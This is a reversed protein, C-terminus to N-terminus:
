LSLPAGARMKRAFAKMKARIGNETERMRHLFYSFRPDTPKREVDKLFELAFREGLEEYLEDLLRGCCEEVLQQRGPLFVIGYSVEREPWETGCVECTPHFTGISAWRRESAGWPGSKINM